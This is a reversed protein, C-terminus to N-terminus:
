SNGAFVPLSKLKAIFFDAIIGTLLLAVITGVGWSGGILIGLILMIGDMIPRTYRYGTQLREALFLAFGDYPNSGTDTQAGIGLGLGVSLVAAMLYIVRIVTNEAAPLILSVVKVGLSIFLPCLATDFSVRHRDLILLLALFFMNAIFPTWSMDIQLLRSLGQEFTTMADAGLNAIMMTGAGFGVTLGGTMMIMYKKVTKNM